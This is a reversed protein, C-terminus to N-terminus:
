GVSDSFELTSSADPGAAETRDHAAPGDPSSANLGLHGGTAGFATSGSGSLLRM